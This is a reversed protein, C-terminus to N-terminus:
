PQITRGGITGKECVVVSVGRQALYFAAACGMIGGGIIVVDASKPKMAVM